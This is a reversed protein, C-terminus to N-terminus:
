MSALGDRSSFLASLCLYLCLCLCQRQCLPCTTHQTAARRSKAVLRLRFPFPILLPTIRVLTPLGANIFCRRLKLYRSGRWAGDGHITRLHRPLSETCRPGGRGRGRRGGGLDQHPAAHSGTAPGPRSDATVPQQQSQSRTGLCAPELLIALSGSLWVPSLSSTEWGVPFPWLDRVRVTDSVTCGGEGREYVLLGVRDRGTTATDDGLLLDQESRLLRPTDRLWGQFEPCESAACRRRFLGRERGVPAAVAGEPGGEEEGEAFARKTTVAATGRKTRVNSSSAQRDLGRTHYRSDAEAAAAAAAVPKKDSTPNWDLGVRVMKDWGVWWVWVFVNCSQNISKRFVVKLQSVCEDAAVRLLIQRGFNNPSRCSIM